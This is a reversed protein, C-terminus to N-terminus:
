IGGKNLKDTLSNRSTGMTVTVIDGSNIGSAKTIRTIIENNDKTKFRIDRNLINVLSGKIKNIPYQVIIENSFTYMLESNVTNDIEEQEKVEDYYIKKEVVTSMRLTNNEDTSITGDKLLYYSTVTGANDVTVKNLFDVDETYEHTLVEDEFVTLIEQTDRYIEVLINENKYKVNVKIDYLRIVQEFLDFLSMINDEGNDINGVTTTKIDFIIPLRNLIDGNIYEKTIIDKIHSELSNYDQSVQFVDINFIDSNNLFTIKLITNDIDVSTIKGIFTEGFFFVVYQANFNNYLHEKDEVSITSNSKTVIDYKIDITVMPLHNIYKFNKDFFLARQTNFKDINNM